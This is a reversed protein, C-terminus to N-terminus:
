GPPPPDEQKGLERKPDVAAEAAEVAETAWGYGAAEEAAVEAAKLRDHIEDRLRHRRPPPGAETAKNGEPKETM